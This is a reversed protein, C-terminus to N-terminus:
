LGASSLVTRVLVVMVVIFLTTFTVGAAMFTFISGGSFDRERNKNSQVGFAAAATSFAVQWANPKQRDTQQNQKSM